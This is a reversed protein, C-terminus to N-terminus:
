IKRLGKRQNYSLQGGYIKGGPADRYGPKPKYTRERYYSTALSRGERGISTPKERDPPPLRKAPNVFQAIAKDRDPQKYMRKGKAEASWRKAIAPHKAYMFRRQEPSVFPM